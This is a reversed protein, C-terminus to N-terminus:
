NYWLFFFVDLSKLPVFGFERLRLFLKVQDVLEVGDIETRLKLFQQVVTEVVAKGWGVLSPGPCM